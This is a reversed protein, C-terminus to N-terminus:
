RPPGDPVSTSGAGADPRVPRPCCHLSCQGEVLGLGGLARATEGASVERYLDVVMAAFRPDSGSTSVRVFGFGARDAADAAETDLDQVVEMHDIVFGIPVVIVTDTSDADLSEIVDVIDPELWPMTPPGSRSQWVMRPQVAGLDVSEGVRDAVGAWVLRVAEAIQDVYGCLEAQSMPLSHASFLVSTRNPDLGALAGALGDVIPEVFGPHNFFLRLKDLRPATPGVQERATDLDDLYQRCGSYSGYASTVFVAAREIGAAAMAAVTDALFPESNRNGWYVPVDLSRSGLEARVDAVLQRCLENHPSVGGRALYHEAVADLRARPVGRGATVRELFPM